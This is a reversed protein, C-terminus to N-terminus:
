HTYYKNEEKKEKRKKGVKKQKNSKNKLFMTNKVFIHM